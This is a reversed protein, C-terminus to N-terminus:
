EVPELWYSPSVGERIWGLQGDYEIYWWVINNECAPGGIVEFVGDIVIIGIVAGDVSPFDRLDYDGFDPLVIGRGDPELRMPLASSIRNCFRPVYTLPITLYIDDVNEPFWGILELQSIGQWWTIGDVCVPGGVVTFMVDDMATFEVLPIGGPTESIPIGYQMNRIAPAIISGIEIRSIIGGACVRNTELNERPDPANLPAIMFAWEGGGEFFRFRENGEYIDENLTLTISGSRYELENEDRYPYDHVFTNPEDTQYLIQLMNHPTWFGDSSWNKVGIAVMLNLEDFVGLRVIRPPILSQDYTYTGTVTFDDLNIPYVMMEEFRSEDLPFRALLDANLNDLEAIDKTQLSFATVDFSAEDLRGLSAYGLGRAYSLLPNQFVIGLAYDYEAFARQSLNIRQYLVARSIPMMIDQPFDYWSTRAYTEIASADDGEWFAQLGQPVGEIVTQPPRWGRREGFPRDFALIAAAFLIAGDHCREDDIPCQTLMREFTIIQCNTEYVEGRMCQRYYECASRYDIMDTTDAIEDIVREDCGDNWTEEQAQVSSPLIILVAMVLLLYKQMLRIGGCARALLDACVGEATWGILGDYDVYWWIINDMCVPGGIVEFVGLPPIEGVLAGDGSPFDRINNAGLDPVVQATIWRDLRTPLAPTTGNCSITNTDVITNVADYITGWNEAIWGTYGFNSYGEWWTVGNICTPGSILTFFGEPLIVEGVIEEGDAVDWILLNEIYSVGAVVDGIGLFSRVSGECYRPVM